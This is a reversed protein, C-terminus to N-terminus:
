KIIQWGPIRQDLQEQRSTQLQGIRRCYRQRYVWVSLTKELPDLATKYQPYRGQRSIFKELQDMRQQWLAEERDKKPPTLWGPVHEDLYSKRSEALRGARYRNRQHQLFSYLSSEDDLYGRPFRGNIHKFLVLEAARDIWPVKPPTKKLGGPPLQPHDHLMLRQGRLEPKNAVRNRIHNYVKRYPVRCVVAIRWPDLGRTWMYFWEERSWHQEVRYDATDSANALSTATM